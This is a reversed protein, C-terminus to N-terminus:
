FCRDLKEILSQEPLYHYVGSGQQKPDMGRVFLYLVGGFDKEYKFEQNFRRLFRCLAITYIYLQLGYNHERMELQMAERSTYQQSIGLNNTKYDIIYIRGQHMCILDIFGTLYGHMKKPSLPAYIEDGALLQNLRKINMQEIKFTFGMEKNLQTAELNSLTFPQEEATSDFMSATVTKKLLIELRDLNLDVRHKLCIKELAGEVKGEALDRFDLQELADHVVNGFSIGGPLDFEMDSQHSSREPYNEDKVGHVQDYSRQQILGSFSTITRDAYITRKGKPRLSLALVAPSPTLKHPESIEENQVAQYSFSDGEGSLERLVSLQAHYAARGEPFLLRGLPSRFSGRYRNTIERTDGWFLYCCLKARTIAVYALRLEEQEEEIISRERNATYDKSGIDFYAIKDRQFKAPKRDSFQPLPNMLDPCFVIPYELGKASHMTVISVAHEDSELRLEHEEWRRNGEVQEKFWHICQDAGYHSSDVQQILECLHLINATKREGDPYSAVRELVTFDRFLRNIMSLFTSENWIIAYEQFRSIMTGIAAEDHSLAYIEAASFCFWESSFIRQILGNRHPNMVAEIITLLETAEPTEFVSTKSTMVSPIGHKSLLNKYTIAEDNTRVLIAVDQASIEISRDTSEDIKESITYACEASLLKQIETCIWNRRMAQAVGSSMSVGEEGSNMLHCLVIGSCDQDNCRLMGDSSQKAADVYRYPEGGFESRQFLRNVSKIIRPHSRFNKQLTLRNGAMQRAEYYTHIDAGRFRYIAQKPDGIIYLYHNSAGFLQYLIYWQLADTDQFEDVCILRFREQIRKRVWRGDKSRVAEALKDILDAFSIKGASQLTIPLHTQIYDILQHRIELIFHEASDLYTTLLSGPLPISRLFDSRKEDGKLRTKKLAGQLKELTLWELDRASPLKTSVFLTTLHQFRTTLSDSFDKKWYNGAVTEQLVEILRVKNEQWWSSLLRFRHEVEDITSDIGRLSPIVKTSRDGWGQVSQYLLEPTYYRSVVLGCLHPSLPYITNRWFDRALQAIHQDTKSTLEVEFLQGTELPQESLMRHCFGHITFIAAQDIDLLAEELLLLYRKKDSVNQAWRALVEDVEEVSKGALLKRASEFRTRIRERLEETAAVTFTLVLLQDVRIELETVARLILMSIAFTKGTGASAEILTIGSSLDTGLSDFLIHDSM